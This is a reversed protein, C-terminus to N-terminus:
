VQQEECEVVYLLGKGQDDITDRPVFIRAEDTNPDVHRIRNTIRVDAFTGFILKHTTRHQEKGSALVRSAKVSVIGCPVDEEVVSWSPSYSGEADQSDTRSEITVLRTLFDELPM